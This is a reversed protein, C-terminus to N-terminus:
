IERVSEKFTYPGKERILKFEQINETCVVYLMNHQIKKLCGFYDREVDLGTYQVM